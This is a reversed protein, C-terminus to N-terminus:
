TSVGHRWELTADWGSQLIAENEPLFSAHCGYIVNNYERRRDHGTAM